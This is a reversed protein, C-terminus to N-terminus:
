VGFGAARRVIAKVAASQEDLQEPLIYGPVFREPDVQDAVAGAREVQAVEDLAREGHEALVKSESVHDEQRRGGVELGKLRADGSM